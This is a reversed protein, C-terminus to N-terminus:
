LFLKMCVSIVPYSFSTQYTSVKDSSSDDEESSSDKVPPKAVNLGKKAM